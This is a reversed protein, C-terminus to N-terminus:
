IIKLGAPAVLALEEPTQAADIAPDITADCLETRRAAAQSKKVEDGTMLGVTALVDNKAFEAVRVKRILNRHVERAIPMDITPLNNADQRWAGRYLRNAPFDATSCVIVNTADSPVVLLKVREIWDADTEDELKGQIAPTVVSMGGDPRTYIIRM